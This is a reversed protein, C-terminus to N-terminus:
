YTSNSHSLSIPFFDPHFHCAFPFPADEQVSKPPTRSRHRVEFVIRVIRPSPRAYPSGSKAGERPGVPVNKWNPQVHRVDLTHPNPVTALCPGVPLLTFDPAAADCRCPWAFPLYPAEQHNRAIRLKRIKRHLRLAYAKEGPRARRAPPVM